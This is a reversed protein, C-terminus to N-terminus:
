VLLHSTTSAPFYNDRLNIEPNSWFKRYSLLDNLLLLFHLLVQSQDIGYPKRCVKKVPYYSGDHEFSEESSSPEKPDTDTEMAVITKGQAERVGMRHVVPSLLVMGQDLCGILEPFEKSEMEDKPTFWGKFTEFHKVKSNYSFVCGFPPTPSVHMATGFTYIGGKQKQSELRVRPLKGTGMVDYEESIIKLKKVSAINAKCINAKQSDLTTKVEIVGYVVEVPFLQISTLAFLSPYLFTDYIVVDCQHSQGGDRDIVVGTGVGYRRPIFRKLLERLVTENGEGKLGQHKFLSNVLDVESRLKQAIGRYYQAVFDSM